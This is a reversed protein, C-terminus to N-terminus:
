ILEASLADIGVSKPRIKSVYGLLTIARSEYDRRIPDYNTYLLEHGTQPLEYDARQRKNLLENTTTIM